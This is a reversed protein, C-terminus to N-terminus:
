PIWGDGSSLTNTIFGISKYSFYSLAIIMAIDMRKNLKIVYCLYLIFAMMGLRTSGIFYAMIIIPAGVILPEFRRLSFCALIIFFSTKIVGIPGSGSEIAGQYYANFKGFVQEKLLFFILIISLSSSVILTTKVWLRVTSKLLISLVFPTIIFLMQLHSLIATILLVSKKNNLCIAVIFFLFGIKLRETSFFLGLMYYNSILFIIFIHRHWVKEYYKFVAQVLFFILLANTFSTFFIKSSFFSFIYAIFFYIPEQAGLTEKYCNFKLLLTNEDQLCLNYFARYFRQDGETYYQFLLLSFLFVLVSYIISYFVTYSIKKSYM